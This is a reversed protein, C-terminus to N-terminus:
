PTVERPRIYGMEVAYAYLVEQLMRRGRFLRSKVTGLPIGLVEAVEAYPLGQLDSLVVCERFEVPLSDIARLVEEDVFSDFFRGEPDARSVEDFVAVASLAEVDVELRSTPTEPRRARRENQRLFVNRCITFLWSRCNTGRTYSAWSRYARLYTEQVLDKARDEDGRALRMGFRFVAEMHPLAEEAFGPKEPLESLARTEAPAM